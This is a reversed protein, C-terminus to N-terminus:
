QMKNGEGGSHLQLAIFGDFSTPAPDTFDIITIGNLLALMRNNEVKLLYEFSRNM